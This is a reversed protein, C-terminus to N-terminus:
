FDGFFDRMKCGLGAAIKYLSNVSANSEAREIQSILSVSLDTRRSLDKLTLGAQKRLRRITSGIHKQLAREPDIMLGKKRCATDLSTLLDQETAPKKLFDVVDLKLAKVATDVSPNSTLVIVALDEDQRRIAELLAMGGLREKSIDLLLIHCMKRRIVEFIERQKTKFGVCYGAKALAPELAEVWTPDDDVVILNISNRRGCGKM